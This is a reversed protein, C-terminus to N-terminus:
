VYQRAWSGHGNWMARASTLHSFGDAKQAAAYTQVWVGESDLDLVHFCRQKIRGLHADIVGTSGCGLVLLPKTAGLATGVATERWTCGLYPHHQHGHLVLDVHLRTLEQMVDEADIAVGFGRAADEVREASAVPMLHHHLAVVRLQTASPAGRWGFEAIAADIAAKTVCGVGAFADKIQQLACSNLGLVDLTPGGTLFYRRGIALHKSPSREYWKRWFAEYNKQAEPQAVSVKGTTEYESKTKAAESWQIDHNGPIIVFHDPSVGLRGRLDNLCTWAQDFEAESGSWTLDGTVVVIAPPQDNIVEDVAAALTRHFADGLGTAFAHKGAGFHLDSLHLIRSNRAVVVDQPAVPPLPVRKKPGAAFPADPKAPKAVWYTVNGFELLQAVGEIKHDVFAEPRVLVRDDLPVERYAFERLAADAVAEFATLKFWTAFPRTRYYEPTKDGNEPAATLVEGLESKIGLLRARYLKRQGSDVLFVFTEGADVQAQLDSWLQTPKTEDQKKWWAWWAYGHKKAIEEHRAITWGPTPDLLDRYRLCLRIGSPTPVPDSM